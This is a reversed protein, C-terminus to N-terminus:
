DIILGEKEALLVLAKDIYIGSICEKKKKGNELMDIQELKALVKISNSNVAVTKTFRKEEEINM